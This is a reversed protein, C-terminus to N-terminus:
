AAGIDHAEDLSAVDHDGYERHAVFYFPVETGEYPLPYVDIVREAIECAETESEAIVDLRVHDTVIRRVKASIKFVPM